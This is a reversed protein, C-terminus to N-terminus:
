IGKYKAIRISKIQLIKKYKNQMEILSAVIITGLRNIKQKM